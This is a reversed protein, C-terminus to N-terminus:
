SPQRGRRRRTSVYSPRFRALRYARDDRCTARGDRLKLQRYLRTFRYPCSGAEAAATMVAICRFTCSGGVLSSGSRAVGGAFSDAATLGISPRRAVVCAGTELLLGPDAALGAGALLETIIAPGPCRPTRWRPRLRCAPGPRRCTMPPRPVVTIRFIRPIVRLGAASASSARTM